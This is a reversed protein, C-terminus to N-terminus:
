CMGHDSPVLQAEPFTLMAIDINYNEKFRDTQRQECVVSRLEQKITEPSIEFQEYRSDNRESVREYRM